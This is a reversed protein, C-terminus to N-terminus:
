GEQEDVYEVEFMQDGELVVYLPKKDTIIPRVKRYKGKPARDRVRPDFYAYLPNAAVISGDTDVYFACRGAANLMAAAMRGLQLMADPSNLNAVTIDAAEYTM